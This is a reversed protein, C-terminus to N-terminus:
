QLTHGRQGLIWAFAAIAFWAIPIREDQSYFTLSRRRKQKKAKM